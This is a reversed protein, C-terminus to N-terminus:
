VVVSCVAARTHFLFVSASEALLNAIRGECNACALHVDSGTGCPCGDDGVGVVVGEVVGVACQARGRRRVREGRREVEGRSSSKAAAQM